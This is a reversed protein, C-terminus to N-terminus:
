GADFIDTSVKWADVSFITASLKMWVVRIASWEGDQEVDLAVVWDLLESYKL